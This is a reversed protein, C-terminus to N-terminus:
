EVDFGLKEACYEIADEPTKGWKTGIYPKGDDYVTCLYGGTEDAKIRVEYNQALYELATIARRSM